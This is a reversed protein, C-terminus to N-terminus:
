VTSSNMFLVLSVNENAFSCSNQYFKGLVESSPSLNGNLRPSKRPLEIPLDTLEREVSHEMM